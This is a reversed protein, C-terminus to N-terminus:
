AVAIGVRYSPPLLGFLRFAGFVTLYLVGIGAARSPWHTAPVKKRLRWGIALMAIAGLAVGTLRLEIPVHTHEYAYKLLFAVGFFLVVVGVRM